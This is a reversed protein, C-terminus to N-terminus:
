WRSMSGLNFVKEFGQAKLVSRAMASRAGSACYVVVPQDKAGLLKLKAGLEGVPVNVAGPIHGSGFEGPSRVDVLKAGGSVLKRAEASSIQGIRKFILFAAIVGGMVLWPVLESNM